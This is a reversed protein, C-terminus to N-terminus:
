PNKPTMCASLTSNATLPKLILSPYAQTLATDGRAQSTQGREPQHLTLWGGWIVGSVAILGQSDDLEASSNFVCSTGNEIEITFYGRTQTSSQSQTAKPTTTKDWRVLVSGLRRGNDDVLNTRATGGPALTVSDPEWRLSNRLDRMEADTLPRSDATQFRVDIQAKKKTADAIIADHCAKSYPTEWMGDSIRKWSCPGQTARVTEEKITRTTTPEQAFVAPLCLWSMVIAFLLPAGLHPNM